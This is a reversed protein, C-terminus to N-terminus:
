TDLRIDEAWFKDEIKIVKTIIKSCTTPTVKNFGEDLQEILNKMTFDCNRAIHNKAVGWCTEIPQLEPDFIVRWLDHGSEKARKHLVVIHAALAEYDIRMGDYENNENFEIDYGMKNLPNTPLHVSGGDKDIVPTM